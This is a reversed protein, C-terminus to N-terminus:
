VENSLLDVGLKESFNEIAEKSPHSERKLYNATSTRPLGYQSAFARMSLGTESFIKGLNDFFIAVEADTSETHTKSKTETKSVEKKQTLKSKLKELEERLKENEQLLEDRENTVSNLSSVLGEKEIVFLDQKERLSEITKDLNDKNKSPMPVDLNYKKCYRRIDGTLDLESNDKNKFNEMNHEIYNVIYDILDFEPIILKLEILSKLYSDRYNVINNLSPQSIKYERYMKTVSINKEEMMRYYLHKDERWNHKPKTNKPKDKSIEDMSRPLLKPTKAM